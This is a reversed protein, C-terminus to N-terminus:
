TSVPAPDFILGREQCLGYWRHAMEPDSLAGGQRWHAGEYAPLDTAAEYAAAGQRLKRTMQALSRYQFHRYALGTTIVGPRNVSHNGMALEADPWTRFAVKPFIQPQRRRWVIEEVPNAFCSRHAVHDYGVANVVDGPCTALFEALTVGSKAYFIEDADFPLVWEARAAMAKRALETMKRSQYYATENDDLVLLPYEDALEALLERTGDTSMNDAAIIFDVGQAFLHRITHGIIDAEDRVM